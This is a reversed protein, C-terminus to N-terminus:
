VNVDVFRSGAAGVTLNTMVKELSTAMCRYGQTKISAKANATAQPLSLPGVAGSGSGGAGVGTCGVGDVGTVRGTHVTPM